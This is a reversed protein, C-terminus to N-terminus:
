ATLEAVYLTGTATDEVVSIKEGPMVGLFLGPDTSKLLWDSTTAATGATTIRIHCNSSTSLLIAYTASGFATSTAATATFAIAQVNHDLLRWREPTAM